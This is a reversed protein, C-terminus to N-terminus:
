HAAAVDSYEGFDLTRLLPHKEDDRGRDSVANGLQEAKFGERCNM